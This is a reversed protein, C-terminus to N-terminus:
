EFVIRSWELMGNQVNDISRIQCSVQTHSMGHLERKLVMMAQNSTPQIHSTEDVVRHKM